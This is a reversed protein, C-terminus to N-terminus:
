AQAAESPALLEVGAVGDLIGHLRETRSPLLWLTGGTSEQRPKLNETVANFLSWLNRDKFEPHRPAEWEEVVDMLQTRPFVEQKACQVLLDYGQTTSVDTNKYMEVIKNQTDWKLALKGIAGTMLGPLDALIETTHKRGIVIEGRFSLNSCVGVGMGVALGARLKKDHANRLGVAFSFDTDVKCNAVQLMGFMRQGAKDLKFTENVIKINHPALATELEQVLTLHPVPHWRGQPEPTHVAALGTRDVTIGKGGVYVKFDLPNM